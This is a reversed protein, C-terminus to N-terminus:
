RANAEAVAEDMRAQIRRADDGATKLYANVCASYVQAGQNYQKVQGEYMLLEAQTKVENPLNPRGPKVCSHKPYGGPGLLSASEQATALGAVCLLALLPLVHLLRPLHTRDASNKM